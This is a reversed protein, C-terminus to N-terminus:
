FLDVIKSQVELPGYFDKFSDPPLKAVIRTKHIVKNLRGHSIGTLLHINIPVDDPILMKM